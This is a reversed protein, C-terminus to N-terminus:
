TSLSFHLTVTGKMETYRAYLLVTCKKLARGSENPFKRVRAYLCVCPPARTGISIFCSTFISLFHERAFGLVATLPMVFGVTLLSAVPCDVPAAVRLRLRSRFINWLM